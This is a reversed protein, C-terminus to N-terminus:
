GFGGIQGFTTYVVHGDEQISAYLLHKRAQFSGRCAAALRSPVVPVDLPMVRVCFQAHFLTPDGPYLLYDAGFKSGATICYKRRKLDRFVAYREIDLTSKPYVWEIDWSIEDGETEPELPISFETGKALAHQWKNEDPDGDDSDTSSAEDVDYDGECSAKRDSDHETRPARIGEAHGKMSYLRVVAVEKFLYTVEEPSLQM